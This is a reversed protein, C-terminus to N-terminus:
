TESRLSGQFMFDIQYPRVIDALLIRQSTTQVVEISYISFNSNAWEFSGVFYIFLTLPNRFFWVSM